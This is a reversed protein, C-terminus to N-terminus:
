AEFIGPPSCAGLQSPAELDEERGRKLVTKLMKGVWPNVQVGLGEGQGLRAPVQRKAAEQGGPLNGKTDGNPLASFRPKSQNLCFM